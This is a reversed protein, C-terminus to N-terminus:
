LLTKSGDEEIVLYRVPEPSDTSRHQESFYAGLCGGITDCLVDTM